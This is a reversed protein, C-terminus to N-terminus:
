SVIRPAASAVRRSNQAFALREALAVYMADYATFNHRLEIVRAQMPQMPQVPHVWKCARHM